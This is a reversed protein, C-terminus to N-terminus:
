FSNFLFDISYYEPTLDYHQPNQDEKAEYQTSIKMGLKWAITHMKVNQTIDGSNWKQLMHNYEYTKRKSSEQKPLVDSAQDNSEKNTECSNSSRIQQYQQNNTRLDDDMIDLQRRAVHTSPINEETIPTTWYKHLFKDLEKLLQQQQKELQNLDEKMQKWFSINDTSLTKPIRRSNEPKKKNDTKKSSISSLKANREQYRRSKQTSDSNSQSWPISTISNNENNSYDYPFYYENFSTESWDQPLLNNDRAKGKNIIPKIIEEEEEPNCTICTEHTQGLRNKCWHCDCQALNHLRNQFKEEMQNEFTIIKRVENCDNCTYGLHPSTKWYKTFCIHPLRTEQRRYTKQPHYSKLRHYEQVSIIKSM